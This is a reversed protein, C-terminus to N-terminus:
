VPRHCPSLWDIEWSHRLPRGYGLHHVGAKTFDTGCSPSMPLSFSLSLCLCSPTLQDIPVSRHESQPRVAKVFAPLLLQVQLQLTIHPLPCVLALYTVRHRYQHGLPRTKCFISLDNAMWKITFPFCAGCHLAGCRFGIKTM